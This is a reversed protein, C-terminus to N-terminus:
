AFFAVIAVNLISMKLVVQPIRYLENSVILDPIQIRKKCKSCKLIGSIDSGLVFSRDVKM